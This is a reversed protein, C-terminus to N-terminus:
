DKKRLWFTLIYQWISTIYFYNFLYTLRIWMKAIWGKISEALEYRERKKIYELLEERNKFDTIRPDSLKSWKIKM